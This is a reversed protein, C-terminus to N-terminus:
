CKPLSFLTITLSVVKIFFFCYVAIEFTQWRTLLRHQFRFSSQTCDYQTIYNICPRPMVTFKCEINELALTTSSSSHCIIVTLIETIKKLSVKKKGRLFSFSFVSSVAPLCRSTVVASLFTVLIQLCKCAAHRKARSFPSRTVHTVGLPSSRCIIFIYLM